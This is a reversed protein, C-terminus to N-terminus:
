NYRVELILINIIFYIGIKLTQASTSLKYSHYLSHTSDYGNQKLICTQCHVDLKSPLIRHEKNIPCEVM